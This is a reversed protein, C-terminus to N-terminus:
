TLHAPAEGRGSRRRELEADLEAGVLVIIGSIWMWTMFGVVAGLAGYTKNYSGFNGVYWSFLMSAVLWVVSAFASGPSLWRWRPHVRSPGFRYLVVLVLNVAVILAPWRAATALWAFIKDGDTFNLAIPLAILAALALLLFAMAGVTLTLATLNLTLFSRREQEDHLVNLAEFVSKVGSSASWLATVLGIAFWIGLSGGGSHTLANIQGSVIDIAGSPMIGSLSQIQADIAAPNLFLGYLSIFAALGPFLALLAYFAMAASLAFTHHRNTNDYIRWILSTWGSATRTPAAAPKLAADDGLDRGRRKPCFADEQPKQHVADWARLMLLAAGFGVLSALLTPPRRSPRDLRASADVSTGRARM